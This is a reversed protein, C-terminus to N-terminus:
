LLHQRRTSVRMDTKAAIRNTAMHNREIDGAEKPERADRRVTPAHSDLHVHPGAAPKSIQTYSMGDPASDRRVLLKVPM